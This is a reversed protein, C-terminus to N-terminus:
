LYICLYSLLMIHYWMQDQFGIYSVQLHVDAVIPKWALCHLIVNKNHVNVTINTTAPFLNCKKKNVIMFIMDYLTDYVLSISNRRTLM